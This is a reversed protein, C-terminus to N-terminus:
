LFSDIEHSRLGLTHAALSEEREFGFRDECDKVECAYGKGYENMKGLVWGTAICVLSVM